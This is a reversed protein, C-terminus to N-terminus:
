KVGGDTPTDAHRSLWLELIKAQQERSADVLTLTDGDLTIEITRRNKRGPWIRRLARDALNLIWSRGALSDAVLYKRLSALISALVLAISALGIWLYINMAYFQIRFVQASGYPTGLMGGDCRSRSGHDDVRFGDTGDYRGLCGGSAAAAM